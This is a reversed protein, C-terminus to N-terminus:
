ALFLITPNIQRKRQGKKPGQKKLLSISFLAPFARPSMGPTLCSSSTPVPTQPENPALPLFGVRIFLWDFYFLRRRCTRYVTVIYFRFMPAMEVVVSENVPSMNGFPFSQVQRRFWGERM